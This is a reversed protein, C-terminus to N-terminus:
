SLHKHIMLVQPIVLQLGDNNIVFDALKVKDNQDWQNKLRQLVAEKSIGDRKIVREVLLQEPAVVVITKDFDRYFGSEFLIAAEHIVYRCSKNQDFWNQQSKKVQPHIIGNLEQLAEGNGFVIKALAKRDIEDDPGLIEKGFLGVIQQKISEEYLLKKAVSDAHFVPIGLISFMRCILSKGSGINGTLGIKQM